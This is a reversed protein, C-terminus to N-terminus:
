SKIVYIMTIDNKTFNKIPRFSSKCKEGKWINKIMKLWKCNKQVYSLPLAFVLLLVLLGNTIKNM